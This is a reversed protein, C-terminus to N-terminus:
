NLVHLPYKKRTVLERNGEGRDEYIIYILDMPFVDKFMSQAPCYRTSSLEIARVLAAEDVGIGTAHYEIVAHTIVRPHTEAREARVIVEFDTIQQRKKQLISIVDMATCGALGTVILDIPRFGDVDGGVTSEAGMSVSFGSDISGTFSLRQLWKAKAEM